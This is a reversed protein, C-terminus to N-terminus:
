QKILQVELMLCFLILCKVIAAVVFGKVWKVVAVKVRATGIKVRETSELGRSVRFTTHHDPSIVRNFLLSAVHNQASQEACVSQTM